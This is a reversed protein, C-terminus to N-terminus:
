HVLHARLQEVLENSVHDLAGLGVSLRAHHLCSLVHQDAQELLAVVGRYADDIPVPHQSQKAIEIVLRRPHCLSVDPIWPSTLQLQLM